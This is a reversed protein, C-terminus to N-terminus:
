NKFLLKYKTISNSKLTIQIQFVIQAQGIEGEGNEMQM